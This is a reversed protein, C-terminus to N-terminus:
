TPMLPDEAFSEGVPDVVCCDIILVLENLPVPPALRM